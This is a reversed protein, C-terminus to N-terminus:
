PDGKLGSQPNLSSQPDGKLSSQPYQYANSDEGIRVKKAHQAKLRQAKLHRIYKEQVKEVKYNQM